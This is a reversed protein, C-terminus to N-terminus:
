GSKKKEKGKLGPPRRGHPRGRVTLQQLAGWSSLESDPELLSFVSPQSQALDHKEEEVGGGRKKEGGVTQILMKIPFKGSFTSSLGNQGPDTMKHHSSRDPAMIQSVKSVHVASRARWRSMKATRFKRMTANFVAAPKQDLDM